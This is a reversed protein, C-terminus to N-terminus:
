PILEFLIRDADGRSIETLRLSRDSEPIADVDDQDVNRLTLRNEGTLPGREVLM